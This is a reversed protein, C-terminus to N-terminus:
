DVTCRGRGSQKSSYMNKDARELLSELTDGCVPLTAGVSAGVSLTEDSYELRMGAVLDCLKNGLATLAGASTATTTIILFEDGGWRTLLDSARLNQRIREAVNALVHDGAQHGYTDNIPKFRDLDLLLLGFRAGSANFSALAKDLVEEGYNRRAAKTLPEVYALNNLEHLLGAAEDAGGLKRFVEVAGVINGNEDHYPLTRVFIPVSTGDKHTLSVQAERIAGDLMTQKLPCGVSCLITSGCHHSLLNEGCQGGLVSEASHGTVEEATKSWFIIKREADVIYTSDWLNEIFTQIDKKKFSNGAM